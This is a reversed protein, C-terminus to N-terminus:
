IITARQRDIWLNRTWIVQSELSAIDHEFREYDIGYQSNLIYMHCAEYLADEIDGSINRRDTVAGYSTLMDVFDGQMVVRVDCKDLIDRDLLHLGDLPCSLIVVDYTTMVRDKLLMKLDMRDITTGIGNSILQINTDVDHCARIGKIGDQSRLAYFDELSFCCTLSAKREDLDIVCVKKGANSEQTAMNITIAHPQVVDTGIYLIFKRHSEAYLANSDAEGQYYRGDPYYDGQGTEQTYTNEPYSNYYDDDPNDQYYGDDQGEAYYEDEQGDTYYDDSQGDNYYEDDQGNQDDTYYEDGGSQDDPYYDYYGQPQFGYDERNDLMGPDCTILNTLEQIGLKAEPYCRLVNNPGIFNEAYLEAIKRAMETNNRNYMFICDTDPRNERIYEALQVVAETYNKKFFEFNFILRNFYVGNNMDAIIANVDTYAYYDNSGDARPGNQQFVKSANKGVCFGVLGM